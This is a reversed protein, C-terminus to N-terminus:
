NAQISLSVYVALTSFITRFRMKTLGYSIGDPKIMYINLFDEKKVTCSQTTQLARLIGWINNNINM